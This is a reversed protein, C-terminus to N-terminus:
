IRVEFFMIKRFSSNIASGRAICQLLIEYQVVRSVSIHNMRVDYMCIAKNPNSSEENQAVEHKAGQDYINDVFGAREGLDARPQDQDLHFSTYQCWWSVLIKKVRMSRANNRGRVWWQKWTLFNKKFNGLFTKKINFLKLWTKEWGLNLM